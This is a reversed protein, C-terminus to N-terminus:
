RWRTLINERDFLWVAIGLLAADVVLIVASIVVVAAPTVVLLGAIQGVVVLVGPLVLLGSIQEATRPDGARSSVITAVAVGLFSLLPALGLVIALWAPTFLMAVVDPPMTVLVAAAYVALGSWTAVCAPIVAALVKAALLETTTVPTALVPELTRAVKEGVISHAAIGTPLLLPLILYLVLFSRGLYLQICQVDDLAACAARIVSPLDQSALAGPPVATTAGLAVVGLMTFGFPLVGVTALILRNRFLEAWEKRVIAPVRRV